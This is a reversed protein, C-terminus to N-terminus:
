KRFKIISEIKMKIQNIKQNFIINDSLNFKLYSFRRKLMLTKMINATKGCKLNINLDSNIEFYNKIDMSMMWDNWKLESTLAPENGQKAFKLRLWPIRFIDAVIAGHMASTIILESAAIESLVTEIDQTPLIVNYGTIMKFLQWDLGDVQEFYPIYSTKYKKKTQLFAPYEQTLALAYATDTIYDLATAKSSIPGRVFSLEQIIDLKAPNYLYDRIGSGFIIKRHKTAELRSDLISGIGVFELDSPYKSFDGLLQNWIFPNLDDGFNGKKSKYYILNM